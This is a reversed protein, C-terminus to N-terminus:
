LQFQKGKPDKDGRNSSPQTRFIKPKIEGNIKTELDTQADKQRETLGKNRERQGEGRGGGGRERERERKRERMHHTHKVLSSPLRRLFLVM